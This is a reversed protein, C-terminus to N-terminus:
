SQAKETTQILQTGTSHEHIMHFHQVRPASPINDPRVNLISCFMEVFLDLDVKKLLLLYMSLILLNISKYFIILKVTENLFNIYCNSMLMCCAYCHLYFKIVM